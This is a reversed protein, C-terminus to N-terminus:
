PNPRASRPSRPLGRVRVPRDSAHLEGHGPDRQLLAMQLADIALSRDLTSKMAWGSWGCVPLTLVVALYLWGEHTPIYTIDAAWIRD